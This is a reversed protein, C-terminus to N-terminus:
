GKELKMVEPSKEEGEMMTGWRGHTSALFSIIGLIGWSEKEAKM